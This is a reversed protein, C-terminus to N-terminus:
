LPGGGWYQGNCAPIQFGMYYHNRSGMRTWFGFPMEIPEATKAPNVVTVSLCVSWVIGHTVIPQM